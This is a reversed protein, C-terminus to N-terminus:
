VSAPEHEPCEIRIQDGQLPRRLLECYIGSDTRSGHRCSYCMRTLPILGLTQMQDLLGLLSNWLALKQQQSMGKVGKLFPAAYQRLRKALAEGEASLVIVSARRDTQSQRKEVLGKEVLVRISDSITPLTVAFSDALTSISDHAERHRELHDLLQAQLLPLGHEQGAQQLGARTATHLRELASLIKDELRNPM